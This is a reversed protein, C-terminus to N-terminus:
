LWGDNSMPGACRLKSRQTCRDLFPAAGVGRVCLELRFLSVKGSVVSVLASRWHFSDVVADAHKMGIRTAGYGGM